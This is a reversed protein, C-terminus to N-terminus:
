VLGRRAELKARVEAMKAQTLGLRALMVFALVLGAIPVAALLIRITFITQVSQNGGLTADFGTRALIESTAWGGIAMGFKMIWSGCASFAGERRKGTELEDYDMVDASISGYIMWFGASTFAILGSAIVQLWRVDPTYLWWTSIFVAIASLQVTMMGRKKGLRKAAYAYVPIGCFGFAMGSLGMWFNWTGAAAVDGRCVYYVTAYYGFTGVLSTGTGYALAMSLNARFPRCKLTQWLTEKISVKGQQRGVVLRDYYRERLLFFMVVGAVIMIAGLGVLYVQAGLLINPKAGTEAPAWGFLMQMLKGLRPFDLTVVGGAVNGFWTFTQRGLVGLRAPVESWSSAVWVGATTFAAAAFMAVEPVKQCVSRFAAVATREHYDPTLEAGLSNFPMYFCSMIPVFVALTAVMFWFYQIETWGPQAAFLLPLAIGALISGVLIFPRRRGFRTRTNDSWWGFLSDWVAEFALKFLLARGIWAPSVGLYINFVQYALGVYLWHGWMDHVSGLGMGLKQFFPVRDADSTADSAAAVAPKSSETPAPASPM